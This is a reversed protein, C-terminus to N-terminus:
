GLDFGHKPNRYVSWAGVGSEEVVGTVIIREESVSEVGGFDYHWSVAAEAAASRVGM